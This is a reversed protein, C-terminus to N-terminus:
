RARCSRVSAVSLPRQKARGDAFSYTARAFSLFGATFPKSVPCSASIYSHREGRYTFNRGLTLEFHALHPLYGVARPLTAVLATPFSGHRPRILFPLMLSIPPAASYAHVWVARRGGETRGNFAVMQADIAFPTQQPVFVQAELVGSGVRAAGCRRLSQRTTANRLRRRPCVALGHTSLLGRGALELEVRTVRPLSSDDATEVGGELHVAVPAPRHRPLELPTIGGNLSVILNGSQFREGHALGPALALVAGIAAAAARRGLRAM